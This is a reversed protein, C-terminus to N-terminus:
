MTTMFLDYTSNLKETLTQQNMQRKVLSGTFYSSNERFKQFLFVKSYSIISIPTIRITITQYVM